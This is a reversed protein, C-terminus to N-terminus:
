RILDTPILEFIIGDLWVNNVLLSREKYGVRRFGVSELVKISAINLSNSEAVIRKVGNKFLCKALARVADRCNGRGRANPLMRYGIQASEDDSVFGVIQGINEGKLDQILYWTQRPKEKSLWETLEERTTPDYPEFEGSYDPDNNWRLLFELDHVDFPKLNVLRGRIM